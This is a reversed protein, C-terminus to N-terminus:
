LQAPLLLRAVEKEVMGVVRLLFGLGMFNLLGEGGAVKPGWM